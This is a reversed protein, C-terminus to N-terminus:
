SAQHLFVGQFQKISCCMPFHIRLSLHHKSALICSTKRLFSYASSSVDYAPLSFNLYLRPYRTSALRYHSLHLIGLLSLM